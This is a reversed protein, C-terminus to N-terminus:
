VEAQANGSDTYRDYIFKWHKGYEYDKRLRTIGGWLVGALSGCSGAGRALGVPSLSARVLPLESM